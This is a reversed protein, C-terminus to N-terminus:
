QDDADKEAADKVTVDPLFNEIKAKQRLSGMYIVM